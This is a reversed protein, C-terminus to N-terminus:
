AASGTIMSSIENIDTKDKLKEGIVKGNRMVIIRDSLEFVHSLNHSILITSVDRYTDRITKILALARRQEGVGLNNTPEDFILIKGGWYVARGVAISQQQGGSLLDVPAAFDKLEVGIRKLVKITEERMYNNNLFWFLKGLLNAQIKERGLFLNSSADLTQILSKDQYVVEIGYKRASRTNIIETKKGEVYIEGGDKKNAGTITKILTSKGAGNDGVIALIENRYLKMDIKDVARIGGFHKELGRLELVVNNEFYNVM